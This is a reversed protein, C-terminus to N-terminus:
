ASKRQLSARKTRTRHSPRLSALASSGPESQGINKDLWKGAEKLSPPSKGCYQCSYSDREFINRRSFSINRKPLKDFM